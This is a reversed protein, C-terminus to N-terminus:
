RAVDDPTDWDVLSEAEAASESLLRVDDGLADLVAQLSRKGAALTEDVAPLSRAVHYRAVLPNRVGSRHGVLAAADPAETAIRALLGARIKPLDCALALAHSAGLGQAHRLLGRLGGLPGAGTPSDGVAQLGYAAYAEPNGVLVFPARPLAARLEGLLRGLLTHEGGPALLLGKAVGGMRSGRGGVFIGVLLAPTM